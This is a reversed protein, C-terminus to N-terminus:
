PTGLAQCVGPVHTLDTASLQREVEFVLILAQTNALLDLPQERYFSTFDLNFDTLPSLGAGAALLESQGFKTLIENDNGNFTPVSVAVGTESRGEFTLTRGVVPFEFKSSGGGALGPLERTGPDLRKVYGSPTHAFLAMRRVVPAVDECALHLNGGGLEYLDNPRVRLNVKVQQNPALPTTVAAVQRWLELSADASATVFNRYYPATVADCPVNPDPCRPFAVALIRRQDQPVEFRASGIASKVSTAFNLLLNAPGAVADADAAYDTDLLETLTNSMSQQFASMSAPARLEFISAAYDTLAAGLTAMKWELKQGALDRLAWRPALELLHGAKDAFQIENDYSQSELRYDRLLRGLRAMEVRRGLSAIAGAVWARYIDQLPTPLMEFQVPPDLAALKTQVKQMAQASYLASEEPLLTGSDIIAPERQALDSITEALAQAVAPGMNSVPTVIHADIRLAETHPACHLAPDATDNVVLYLDVQRSGDPAPAVNPAFIVDDRTLVKIDIVNAPNGRGTTVALLAGAPAFTYPTNDLRIGSNFSASMRRGVSSTSGTSRTDSYGTSEGSCSQDTHSVGVPIPVPGISPPTGASYGDCKNHSETHSSSSQHERGGTTAFYGENSWEVWYGEPGIQAGNGNFHIGGYSGLPTAIQGHAIACDPAYTDGDRVKLHLSDGSRLTIVPLAAISPLDFTPGPKWKVQDPGTGVVLDHEFHHVAFAAQSDLLGSKLINEFAAQQSAMEEIGDAERGRLGGIQSIVDGIRVFVQAIQDQLRSIDAANAEQALLGSILQLKNTTFTVKETVLPDM